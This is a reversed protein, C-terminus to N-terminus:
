GLMDEAPNPSLKEYPSVGIIAATAEGSAEVPNGGCWYTSDMFAAISPSIRARNSRRLTRFLARPYLDSRGPPRRLPPGGSSRTARTCGNRSERVTKPNALKVHCKIKM